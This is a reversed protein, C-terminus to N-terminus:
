KRKFQRDLESIPVEYIIPRGHPCSYPIECNKLDQLLQEIEPQTMKDGVRVSSHCAMTTLLREKHKELQTRENGKAMAIDALMEKVFANMDANKIEVPVQRLVYSNLGFEEIKLGFGRLYEINEALILLEQPNLELEFPILLSQTEFDKNEYQKMLREYTVREAAAHQDIIQIANGNTTILYANLLQFVPFTSHQTQTFRDMETHANTTDEESLPNQASTELISQTFSLAEKISNPNSSQKDLYSGRSSSKATFQQPVMPKPNSFDSLKENTSDQLSKELGARVADKVARFISQQDSFRVELKRPHVNVDVKTPDVKINLAFQPHLERPMATHFADKVAAIITGNSIPRGNVIIIQTSKRRTAIQPLGVFGSVKIIGDYYIEFGNKAFNEGILNRIREKLSNAKPLNFLQKGNHYLEFKIKPNALAVDTLTKVIHRMETAPTKLFKRRAPTNFFIEHIYISTGDASGAEEENEINGGTMQIRFGSLESSQKTILEVKSVSSISALAEGRFGLTLINELDDLTKIKSTSHPLFAMRADAASMGVGDDIVKIGKLGGEEVYIKIDTANADLSNEVLEKLVSAPREVVEGAAIQNIINNPLVQINNM